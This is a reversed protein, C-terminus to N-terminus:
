LKQLWRILKSRWDATRLYCHAAASDFWLDLGNKRLAPLGLLPLRPDVPKDPILPAVAVGDPVELHFPPKGKWLETSGPQNPYIWVDAQHCPVQQQHIHKSGLVALLAPRIGAWHLLHHEHLYFDYNNATDLLAPFPPSLREPSDEGHLGISIWVLVEDRYLMVQRQGFRVPQTRPMLPLRDLIKTM